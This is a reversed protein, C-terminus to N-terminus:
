RASAELRGLGLGPRTGAAEEGRADRPDAAEGTCLSMPVHIPIHKYLHTDNM